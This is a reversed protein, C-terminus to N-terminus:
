YGPGHDLIRRPNDVLMIRILEDSV